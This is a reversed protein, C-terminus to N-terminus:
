NRALFPAMAHVMVESSTTFAEQPMRSRNREHLLAPLYVVATDFFEHTHLTRKILRGNEEVEMGIFAGGILHMRTVVFFHMFSPLKKITDFLVGVPGAPTTELIPLRFLNPMRHSGIIAEIREHVWKACNESTIQYVFNKKRANQIDKKVLAMLNLGESHELVFCERKFQRNTYFINEDPM